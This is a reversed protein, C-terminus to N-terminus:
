PVQKLAWLRPAKTASGPDPCRIPCHARAGCAGGVNALSHARRCAALRADLPAAEVREALVHDGGPASRAPGCPPEGFEDPKDALVAPQARKFIWVACRDTRELKEVALREYVRFADAPHPRTRSARGSADWLDSGLANQPAATATSWALEVEGDGLLVDVLAPVNARQLMSRAADGRGAV